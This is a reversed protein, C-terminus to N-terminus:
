IHDRVIEVRIEGVSQLQAHLHDGPYVPGVGEPTGTFILDGPELTFVSSLYAIVSDLRFIMNQTNSSQRIEGNVALSIDLRHPDAVAHRTVFESIPASTDFGKAVSWPLGKKKAEAQVDRLTMDLGVAYGGVHDFAMEQSIKRGGKDILVVLEVEHHIDTSFSPIVIKGGPPLLATSPKLFVIPTTPIEAHMEKAHELYNRGLCLIKGVPYQVNSGKIQVTKMVTVCEQLLRVM